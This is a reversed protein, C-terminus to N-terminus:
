HYWQSNDRPAGLSVLVNDIVPLGSDMNNFHGGHSTDGVPIISVTTVYFM